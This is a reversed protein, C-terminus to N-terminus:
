SESSRQEAILDGVRKGFADSAFPKTMVHMGHDLHGHNLVANEAYGTIFLVQLDPRHVRSADALQRGNMGGPLGVDTVLLDIRQSTQLLKLASPGDEAELVRYGLDELVEVAIMRVLPEDDVVLITEHEAAAPAIDQKDSAADSSTSGTHRPLYICVMTGKGVESYIRVAGNSQGAFGHVMSLGLGTGQGIPKTTFFPDFVRKLVDPSIGTGTDSVCMSIYQGARVGREKAARVDLWRNATEITLKGGDPMADRANICLNLLASEMQGVDVFATWLGGALVAEVAITPGVTRSILDQMGSVVQNLDAPTPDLTQRRSFALLRQTLGAARKAAGAAGTLYRDLDGVRGQALRTQMLELSGSIGALINNFDHALGGTLQGVAEMKQAQRLQEEIEQRDTIDRGIAYFVNGEPVATWSITRYDGDATRLRDVFEQTTKGDHMAQVIAVAAPLDDPHILESFPKSLLTEEDFRLIRTWAPNIGKLMGDFGAVALLDHSLAWTRDREATRQAVRQELTDNLKRLGAEALKRDHIDVSSGFWRLIQGTQPDRHPEGRVLFWRYEGKASLIRHEVLFTSGTRLADAFAVTTAAQDDPHIHSEAVADATPPLAPEGVYDFWQKNMFEVRGEADTIWIIQPVADAMLRFQAESDRLAAEARAREGADWIRNAVEQILSVDEASWRRAERTNVYLSAVFKGGRVLPISVVGRTNIAAWVPDANNPDAQIDDAVVVIGRRQQDIREPGFDNLLYDDTLPQMGEITYSGTTRVIADDIIETYGVRDAALHQGLMEVAAQIIARPEVLGRLREEFNLRFTQRHENLVRDTVDIGDVYIGAVKGEADTLPQYVFDVYREQVPGQPKAQVAYKASSAAFVENRAFVQDLLDLYGQAVADELTEAVTKGVVDRHGVLQQYAPNTMVFRHEPGELLARFGPAQSFMRNLRDREAVQRRETLVQETIELCACFFGAINGTEDRVPTYSFSFHTEESYGKRLMLLRIDDMHVPTGAYAQEVIPLLDARIEEWVVLFDSGFARPHKSALIESYADNYLLTREPGWAVFMPQNSALLLEVLTKLPQPWAEPAGLPSASWDYNSILASARPVGSTETTV